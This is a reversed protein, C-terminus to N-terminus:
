TGVDPGGTVERIEVDVDMVGARFHVEIFETAMRIADAKSPAEVFAYGGIVEKAESFPGDIVAIRGDRAKLQAGAASPALGAASVLAGSKAAAAMYKDMEAYLAPPAPKGCEYDKNGMVMMLYRM